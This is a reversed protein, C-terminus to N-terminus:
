SKRRNSTSFIPGLVGVCVLVCVRVSQTVEDFVDNEMSEINNLNVYNNPSISHLRLSLVGM